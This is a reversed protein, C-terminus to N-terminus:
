PLPPLTGDPRALPLNVVKDTSEADTCRNLFELRTHPTGTFCTAADTAADNADDISGDVASDSSDSTAADNADVVAGLDLRSADLRQTSNTTCASAFLAAAFLLFSKRM